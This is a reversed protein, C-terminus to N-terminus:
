PTQPFGGDHPTVLEIAAQVQGPLDVTTSRSNIGSDPLASAAFSLVYPLGM